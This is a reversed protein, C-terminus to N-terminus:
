ANIDENIDFLTVVELVEFVPWEKLLAKWAASYIFRELSSLSEWELTVYGTHRKRNDIEYSCRREGYARRRDHQTKIAKFFGPVSAGQLDVKILARAM